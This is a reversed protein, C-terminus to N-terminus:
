LIDASPRPERPLLYRLLLCFLPLPNAMKLDSKGSGRTLLTLDFLGTAGLSPVKPVEMVLNPM